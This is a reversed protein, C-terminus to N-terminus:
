GAKGYRARIFEFGWRIQDAVTCPRPQNLALYAGTLLRLVQEDPVRTWSGLAPRNDRDYAQAARVIREQYPTM